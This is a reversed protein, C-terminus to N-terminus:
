ESTLAAISPPNVGHVSVTVLNKGASARHFRAMAILTYM